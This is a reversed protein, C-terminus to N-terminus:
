WESNASVDWAFKYDVSTGDPNEANAVSHINYEFRIRGFLLIINENFFDESSNGGTIISKVLVDEMQMSLYKQKAERKAVVPIINLDAHQITRGQAYLLMMAPSDMGIRKVISIERFSTKDNETVQASHRNSGMGWGWSVVDAWGKYDYNKSGGTIGDMKLFMEVSMIEEQQRSFAGALTNATIRVMM